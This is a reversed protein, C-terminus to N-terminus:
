RGARGEIIAEALAGVQVDILSHRFAELITTICRQDEPPADMFAIVDGVGIALAEDAERGIFVKYLVLAARRATECGAFPEGGQARAHTARQFSTHQPVDGMLWTTVGTRVGADVSAVRGDRVGVRIVIQDGDRPNSARGSGSVLHSRGSM